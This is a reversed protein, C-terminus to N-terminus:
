TEEACEAAISPEQVAASAAMTAAALAAPRALALTAFVSAADERGEDGLAPSRRMCKPEIVDTRTCEFSLNSNSSMQEHRVKLSRAGEASARAIQTVVM